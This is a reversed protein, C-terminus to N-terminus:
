KAERLTISVIKKAASGEEELRADFNMEKDRLILLTKLLANLQVDKEEIYEGLGSEAYLKANELQENHQGHSLPILLAKKRCALLESVTNAGARSLIVTANEYLWGIEDPMIFKQLLYRKQMRPSLRRRLTSLRNFDQYEQADGTQHIVTFDSLLSKLTYEVYTNIIHAGTSGGMVFLIPLNKEVKFEKQVMFVEPRIPNGTLITKGAPFYKRSSSNSICVKAAIKGIIKSAVGAKQTQEHLVVPIRLVYASLAVPFGIYGGFTLVADPREHLLISFVRLISGPFRLLSPITKRGFRRQLRAASLNYFPIKREKFLTYELSFGKDAEFTHRRGVVVVDADKELVTLVALLPALHGGTLLIKKRKINQM